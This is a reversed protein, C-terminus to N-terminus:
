LYFHDRSVLNNVVNISVDNIYMFTMHMFASYIGILSKILAQTYLGFEQVDFSHAVCLIIGGGLSAM